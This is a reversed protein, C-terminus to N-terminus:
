ATKWGRWGGVVLGILFALPTFVMPVMMGLFQGAQPGLLWALGFGGLFTAAALVVASGVGFLIARLAKGM